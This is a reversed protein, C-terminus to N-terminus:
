ISPPQEGEFTTTPIASESFTPEDAPAQWERLTDRAIGYEEAVKAQQLKTQQITRVLNDPQFNCSGVTLDTTQQPGFDLLRNLDIDIQRLRNGLENVLNAQAALLSDTVIIARKRRTETGNQFIQSLLKNM